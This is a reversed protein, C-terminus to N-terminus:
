RRGPVDAPASMLGVRPAGAQQLLVMAGYVKGYDVREDGGILVPVQPNQRVFAAVKSVLAQADVTEREAKGLTLYLTGEQDVTVLVPDAKQELSRANSKPLEIDVGLNLLPATVMFIILLVLMVDVFPTVNIESMMGGSNNGTSMGM